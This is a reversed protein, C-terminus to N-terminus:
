GLFLLKLKLLFHFDNSVFVSIVSNYECLFLIRKEMPISKQKKKKMIILPQQLLLARLLSFTNTFSFPFVNAKVQSREYYSLQYVQDGIMM